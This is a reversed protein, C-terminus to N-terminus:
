SVEKRKISARLHGKCSYKLDKSPENNSAASLQMAQGVDWTARGAPLSFHVAERTLAGTSREHTSETVTGAPETRLVQRRM